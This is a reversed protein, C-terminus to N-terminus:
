EDSKDRDAKRKSNMQKWEPETTYLSALFGLDKEMEPEISHHALMTDEIQGGVRIGEEALYTMDYTSNQAIKRLISRRSLISHLWKRVLVENEASWFSFDSRRKDWIPVVLAVHPSPAISICTMQGAQTEIDFAIATAKALHLRDFTELDRINEAIWIQRAPRRIEPYATEALAKKLDAVVIPRWAWQKVVDGPHYTPLVKRGGARASSLVTGRYSSLRDQGTVAWCAVPGLSVIVPAGSSGLAGGLGDLHGRFDPHLVRSGYTYAVDNCGAKSAESKKIFLKDIQGGPPRMPFVNMFECEVPPIGAKTLMERLLDDVYGGFPAGANVAEGDQCDGVLLLKPV